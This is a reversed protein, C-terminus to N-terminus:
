KVYIHVHFVSADQFKATIYKKKNIYIAAAGNTVSVEFHICM